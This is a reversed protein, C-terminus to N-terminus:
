RKKAIGLRRMRSVFTSRNVNAARAAQTINWNSRAM